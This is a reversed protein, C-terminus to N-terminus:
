KRMEPMGYRKEFESESISEIIKGNGDYINIDGRKVALVQGDKTRTYFDVGARMAYGDNPLYRLIMM